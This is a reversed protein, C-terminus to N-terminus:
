TTEKMRKKLCDNEVILLEQNDTLSDKQEELRRSIIKLDDIEEFVAGAKLLERELSIKKSKGQRLELTLAAVQEDAVASTMLLVSHEERLRDLQHRLDKEESRSEREEKIQVGLKNEEKPVVMEVWDRGVTIFIQQDVCRNEGTPDLMRSLEEVKWREMDQLDVLSLLYEVLNASSV